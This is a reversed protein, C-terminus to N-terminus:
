VLARGDTGKPIKPVSDSTGDYEIAIIGIYGEKCAVAKWLPFYPKLERYNGVRDTLYYALDSTPVILVGGCLTENLLGVFMKNLARHSSSINGTEWEVAFFKNEYPFVADIPGPRVVTAIDLRKELTWGFENLNQAFAKKIPKVGNGKGTKKGPEPYIIFQDNGPPWCVNEISSYVDKFINDFDVSSSFDGQDILTTQGIIKM